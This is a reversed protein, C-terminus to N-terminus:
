YKLSFPSSALYAPFAGVGKGETPNKLGKVLWLMWALRVCDEKGVKWAPSNMVSCGRSIRVM